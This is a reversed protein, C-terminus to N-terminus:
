SEAPLAEAEETVKLPFEVFPIFILVFFPIVKLPELELVLLPLVLPEFTVKLPEVM